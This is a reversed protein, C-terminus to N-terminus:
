VSARSLVALVLGCGGVVLALAIGMATVVHGIRTARPLALYGALYIAAGPASVVYRGLL